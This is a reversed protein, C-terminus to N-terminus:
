DAGLLSRKCVPAESRPYDPLPLGAWAWAEKALPWM